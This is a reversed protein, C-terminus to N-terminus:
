SQSVKVKSGMVKWLYTSWRGVIPLTQTFNPRLGNKPEPTIGNVINESDHIHSVKVKSGIVKVLCDFRPGIIPLTGSFNPPFGNIPEPTVASV